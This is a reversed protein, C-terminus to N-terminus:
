LRLLARSVQVKALTEVAATVVSGNTNQADLVLTDFPFLAPVVANAADVALSIATQFQIGPGNLDLLSAFKLDRSAVLLPCLCLFGRLLRQM